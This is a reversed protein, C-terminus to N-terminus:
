YLTCPVIELVYVGTGSTCTLVIYLSRDGLTCAEVGGGVGSGQTCTLVVCLGSANFYLFVLVDGVDRPVSLSSKAIM